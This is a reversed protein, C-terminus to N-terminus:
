NTAPTTPGESPLVPGWATDKRNSRVFSRWQKFNEDLYSKVWAPVDLDRARNAANAADVTSTEVAIAAEGRLYVNGCGISGVALATLLIIVLFRKM